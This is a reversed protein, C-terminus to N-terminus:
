GIVGVLNSSDSFINKENETEWTPVPAFREILWSFPRNAKKWNNELWLYKSHERARQVDSEKIEYPWSFDGGQTRFLHSFWTRKNVVQQGGSLWSKCAIEVGMQGWSGHAEDLGDLEWYRDRTMMWGAGVCCMVPSITGRAEPRKNFSQWYKFRLENDIRGFDTKKTLRPKWYIKREQKNGGCKLCSTPTPSQYIEDGCDPCFWNFVHLNFMRPITTIDTTLQGTEYPKILKSDFDNDFSCHADCKLIYKARSFRAGENTAARQGIPETHHILTVRNNDIIGPNPWYGDLIVIVETQESSHQLIDDITRALWEENRAPIIVSLNFM